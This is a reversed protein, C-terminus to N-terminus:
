SESCHILSVHQKRNLHSPLEIPLLGVAVEIDSSWGPQDTPDPDIPQLMYHRAPQTTGCGGALLAAGLCSLLLLYKKM